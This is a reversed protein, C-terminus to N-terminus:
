ERGYSSLFEMTTQFVAGNKRMEEEAAKGARPDVAATADAIVIPEKGAKVLGLVAFKVCYDTAVGFVIWRKEERLELTRALNPNSFADLEQKEFYSPRSSKAIALLHKKELPAPPVFEIDAQETEHIKKQGPTGRLCHPPFQQLEPNEPLHCDVSGLIKLRNSRGFRILRHLYRKIKEAGPVYLAGKPDIFDIQTDVDFLGITGEKAM